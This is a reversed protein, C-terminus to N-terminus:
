ERAALKVKTGSAGGGVGVGSSLMDQYHKAMTIAAKHLDSMKESNGGETVDVMGALESAKMLWGAGAAALVDDDADTLLQTIEADSFFTDADTGGAPIREGLHQRLVDSDAM